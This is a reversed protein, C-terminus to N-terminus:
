LTSHVTDTLFISSKCNKGHLSSTQGGRSIHILCAENHHPIVYRRPTPGLLNHWCDTHHLHLQPHHSFTVRFHHCDTVPSSWSLGKAYCSTPTPFNEQGWKRTDQSGGPRWAPTLPSSGTWCTPGAWGGNGEHRMDSRSQWKRNENLISPHQM